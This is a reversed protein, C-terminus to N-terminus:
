STARSPAYTLLGKQIQGQKTGLWRLDHGNIEKRHEAEAESRLVISVRSNACLIAVFRIIVMAMIVM